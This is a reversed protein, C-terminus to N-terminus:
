SNQRTEHRESCLPRPRGGCIVGQPGDALHDGEGERELVPLDGNCSAQECPPYAGPDHGAESDQLEGHYGSDLVAADSRQARFHARMPAHNVAVVAMYQIPEKAM